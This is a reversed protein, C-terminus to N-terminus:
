ARAYLSNLTCPVSLSSVVYLGVNFCIYLPIKLIGKFLMETFPCPLDEDGVYGVTKHYECLTCWHARDYGLRSRYEGGTSLEDVM